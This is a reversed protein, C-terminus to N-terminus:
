IINKQIGIADPDDLSTTSTSTDFLYDKKVEEYKQQQEVSTDMDISANLNM